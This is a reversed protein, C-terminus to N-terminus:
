AAMEDPFDGRGARVGIWRLLTTKGTGASGRLFARRHTALAEEVRVDHGDPAYGPDEIDAHSVRLSLYAPTLPYRRTHADTGFLELVDWREAAKRRYATEFAAEPDEERGVQRPPIRDLVEELQELILAERRLLETFAGSQFNPLTSVTALVYACAEPLVRDYLGVAAASLDRTAHPNRGRIHRELYLPDLDQEFLTRDTLGARTFADAVALVAAERENEPLGRFEHDLDSMIRDAISEEIEAFRRELRRQDRKGSVKQQVLDVVTTTASQAIPNGIWLGCAAKVVAVGLKLAVDYM